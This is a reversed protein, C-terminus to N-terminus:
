KHLKGRSKQKFQSEYMGFLIVFRGFIHSAVVCKVESIFHRLVFIFLLNHNGQIFDANFKASKVDSEVLKNLKFLRRALKRTMQMNLDDANDRFSCHCLRQVLRLMVLKYIVLGLHEDFRNRLQLHLVSKLCTWMASRRFPLPGSWLVDDRVKKKIRAVPFDDNSCLTQDALLTHMLWDFVLVPSAVDRHETQETGKKSSTAPTECGNSLDALAQAFSPASVTDLKSVRVSQQPVLTELASEVCEDGHTMVQTNTYSPQFCSAIARFEADSTQKTLLVCANQAPMYLAMTEGASLSCIARHLNAGDIPSSGGSRYQLECWRELLSCVSTFDVSDRLYASEARLESLTDSAFLLFVNHDSVATLKNEPTSNANTATNTSGIHPTTPLRIPLIVHNLM